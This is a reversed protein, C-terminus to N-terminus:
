ELTGIATAQTTITATANAKIATALATRATTIQTELAADATLAATFITTAQAAQGTSLTLLSTLFSVERAAVTAPDPPTASSSNGDRHMGQAMMAVTTLAAISAFRTISKKM